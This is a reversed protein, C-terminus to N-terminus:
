GGNTAGRRRIVGFPNCLVALRREDPAVVRIVRAASVEGELYKNVVEPHEMASLM